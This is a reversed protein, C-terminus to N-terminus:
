KTSQDPNEVSIREITIELKWQVEPSVDVWKVAYGYNPRISVIEATLTVWGETPLEIELAIRRGIQEEHFCEILGGGVSLDHVRVPVPLLTGRRGVFPGLVRKHLRRNHVEAPKMNLYREFQPRVPCLQSLDPRACRLERERRDSNDAM